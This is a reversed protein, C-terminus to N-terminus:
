IIIPLQFEQRRLMVRQKAPLISYYANTAREDIQLLESTNRNLNTILPIELVKKRENLYAQGIENMGLLRIYPIEKAHLFQKMAKKTTNTLLHVFARQIRVQTYRKTKIKEIWDHFSLANTATKKLRHELGEDVGHIKALEAANMTMVKYLLFPFYQEWHHWLTAKRKYQEFQHLSAKPLANMIKDSIGYAMVEKRISTASAIENSIAEDHYDNQVRKITKAKMPLNDEMISKVYSFGLINNPQILNIDNLGIAEYAMSSAKPFSYGEKLFQRIKQDFLAKHQRLFVIGQVFQDINGSESGFCISSVGLHHLSRVAGSAFFASSQVAYAYPLEIVLDIGSALAAKTRHFKDIIAPEGRQLFSGSMIAIMCNANSLEKAKQVHYLHGNHFPNYEVIVGCAKM